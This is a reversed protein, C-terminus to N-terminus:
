ELPIDLAFIYEADLEKIYNVYEGVASLPHLFSVIAGMSDAAYLLYVAQPINPLCVAIRDGATVGLNELMVRVSDIRKVMEKYSVSKGMFILATYDPYERAIKLVAEYMTCDPYDLSHRIGNYYQLWPAKKKM